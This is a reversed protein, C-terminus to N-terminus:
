RGERAAEQPALCVRNKAVSPEQYQCRIRLTPGQQLVTLRLFAQMAVRM